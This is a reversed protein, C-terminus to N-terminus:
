WRPSTKNDIYVPPSATMMRRMQDLEYRMKENEYRLRDSDQAIPGRGMKVDVQARVGDTAEMSFKAWLEDTVDNNAYRPDAHGNIVCWLVFVAIGSVHPMPEDTIRRHIEKADMECREKLKM